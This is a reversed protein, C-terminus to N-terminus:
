GEWSGPMSADVLGGYAAAAGARLRRFELAPSSLKNLRIFGWSFLGPSGYEEFHRADSVLALAM